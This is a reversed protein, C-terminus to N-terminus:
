YARLNTGACCGNLEALESIRDRACPRREVLRQPHEKRKRRLELLEPETVVLKAARNRVINCRECLELGEIQPAHAEFTRERLCGKLMALKSIRDRACPHQRELDDAHLGLAAADEEVAVLRAERQRAVNVLEAVVNHLEVQAGARQM